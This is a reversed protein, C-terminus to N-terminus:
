SLRLSSCIFEQRLTTSLTLWVTTTAAPPGRRLLATVRAPTLKAAQRTLPAAKLVILAAPM